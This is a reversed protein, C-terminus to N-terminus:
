QEKGGDLAAQVAGRIYARLEAPKEALPWVEDLREFGTEKGDRYRVVVVTSTAVNYRKALEENQNIDVINWSLRGAELADNFEGHVIDHAAKEIRNCTVCRITPYMYHVVVTEGADSRSASPPLRADRAKRLATEKGIAFGISILVFGLLLRSIAKKAKM